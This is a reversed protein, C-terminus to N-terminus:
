TRALLNIFLGRNGRTPCSCVFNVNDMDLQLFTKKRRINAKGSGLELGSVVLLIEVLLESVCLGCDVLSNGGCCCYRDGNGNNDDGENDNEADDYAYYDDFASSPPPM